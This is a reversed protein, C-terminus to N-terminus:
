KGRDRAPRVGLTVATLESVRVTGPVPPCSLIWRVLAGTALSLACRAIGCPAAQFKPGSKPGNVGLCWPFGLFALYWLALLSLLM